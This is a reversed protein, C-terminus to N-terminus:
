SLSSKLLTTENVFPLCATLGAPRDVKPCSAVIAWRYAPRRSNDFVIVGAKALRKVVHALWAPRARGDTVIVDFEGEARDVAHVYEHFTRDRWGHREM